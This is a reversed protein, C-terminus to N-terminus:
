RPAGGHQAQHEPPTLDICWEDVDVGRDKALDRVAPCQGASYSSGREGRYECMGQHGEPQLDTRLRCARGNMSATGYAPRVRRTAKSDLHHTPEGNKNRAIDAVKTRQSTSPRGSPCPCPQLWDGGARVLDAVLAVEVREVGAVRSSRSRGGDPGCGAARVRRRDGGGDLERVLDRASRRARRGRSSTRASWSRLPRRRWRRARSRRALRPEIGAARHARQQDRDVARATISVIATRRTRRRCEHLFRSASPCVASM